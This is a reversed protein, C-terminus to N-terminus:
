ARCVSQAILDSIRRAGLGDVRKGAISGMSRLRPKDTILTDVARAIQDPTVADHVGLNVSMDAAAFLSAGTNHADTLCLHVAPVAASAIEFASVGFAVIALDSQRAAEVLSPVTGLLDTRRKCRALLRTLADHHGYGPGLVISTRFAAEARELGDVVKLTMGAPDSGGMSVLVSPTRSSDAESGAERKRGDPEVSRCGLVTWDWGVRREGRFATWDLRDIDPEPPHFSWDAALRRDSLDDLCVIQLSRRRLSELDSRSLGERVDVLIAAARYQAAANAIETVTTEGSEAPITLVPFRRDAIAAKGLDADDGTTM